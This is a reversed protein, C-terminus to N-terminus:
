RQSLRQDSAYGKWVSAEHRQPAPLNPKKAEDACCATDLHKLM